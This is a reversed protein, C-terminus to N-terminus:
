PGNRRSPSGEPLDRGHIQLLFLHNHVRITWLRLNGTRSYSYGQPLGAGWLRIVGMGLAVRYGSVWFVVPRFFSYVIVSATLVLPLVALYACGRIGRNPEGATTTRTLM